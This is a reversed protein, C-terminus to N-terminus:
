GLGSLKICVVVINEEPMRIDVPVARHVVILPDGHHSGDLSSGFVSEGDDDDDDDNHDNHRPHSENSSSGLTKKSSVRM